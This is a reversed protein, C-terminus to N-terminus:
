LAEASAIYVPIIKRIVEMVRIIEQYQMADEAHIVVKELSPNKERLNRITSELENLNWESSQAPDQKKGSIQTENKLSGFTNLDISRDMRLKISIL